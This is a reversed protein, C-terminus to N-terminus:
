FLTYIFPAVYALGGTAVLLIAALLLVVLLPVLFFRRERVFHRFLGAVTRARSALRRAMARIV